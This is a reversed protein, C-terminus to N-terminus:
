AAVIVQPKGQAIVFQQKFLDLVDHTHVVNRMINRINSFEPRTPFAHIILNDIVLSSLLGALRRAPKGAGSKAVLQPCEFLCMEVQPPEVHLNMM